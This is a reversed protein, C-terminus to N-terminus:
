AAERLCLDSMEQVKKMEDLIQQAMAPGYKIELELMEEYQIVFM